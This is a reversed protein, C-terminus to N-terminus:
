YRFIVDFTVRYDLVDKYGSIPFQFTAGVILNDNFKYRAGLALDFYNHGSVDTAGFNFLDGGGFTLDRQNGNTTYHYYNMEILPYIKHLNAVDYDLHLSLYIDDSRENDISANYGLTGLAHFTGYSSQCFRQGMTVYPALALSGTNQQVRDSGAPIEFTLGLAGLTGTADNRLFTWKPGVWIEAFGTHPEFEPAGDHPESWIEGFKNIVISWRETLALRAQLGFYEIDGGHFIFNKEPTGQVIMIPRVETLSRPDEFYFPNSVPSVFDNFAQDSQFLCRSGNQGGFVGKFWEQCGDWFKATTKPPQNAVGCNYQEAAPGPSAGTVPPPAPLGPGVDPIQGRFIPALPDATSDQYSVTEVGSPLAVPKGLAVSPPETIAVPRGLSPRWASDEARASAFSYLLALGLSGVWVRRM